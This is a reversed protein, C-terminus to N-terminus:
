NRFAVSTEERNVLCRQTSATTTTEDDMDVVKEALSATQDVTPDNSKFFAVKGFWFGPPENTPSSYGKTQSERLCSRFPKMQPLHAFSVDFSSHPYHCLTFGDVRLLSFLPITPVPKEVFSSSTMSCAAADTVGRELYLRLM